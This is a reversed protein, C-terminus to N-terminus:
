SRRAPKKELADLREEHDDVDKRLQDVDKRMVALDVAAQKGGDGESRFARWVIPLVIAVLFVVTVITPGLEDTWGSLEEPTM